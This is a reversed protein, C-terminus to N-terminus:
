SAGGAALPETHLTAGEAVGSRVVCTLETCWDIEVPKVEQRDLRVRTKGGSTHLALRPVLLVDRAQRRVVEIRVSMGPRMRIAHPAASSAEARLKAPPASGESPEANSQGTRELAILVDFFRRTADRGGDSRAIPSIGQVRGKWIQGPYADLV